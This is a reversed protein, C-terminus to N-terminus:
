RRRRYGIDPLSPSHIFIFGKGRRIGYWIKDGKKWYGLRYTHERMASDVVKRTAMGLGSFDELMNSKYLMALQDALSVPDWKLGTHDHRRWFQIILMLTSAFLLSFTVILVYAAVPSVRITWGDQLPTSILLSSKAPILYFILGTTIRMTILLPDHGFGLYLPFYQAGLTTKWNPRDPSRNRKASLAMYPSIRRLNSFIASWVQKTIAGGIAPLYRYAFHSLTPGQYIIGDRRHLYLLWVNAALGSLFMALSIILFGNQLVVPKFNLPPYEKPPSDVFEM